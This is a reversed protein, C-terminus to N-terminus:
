WVRRTKPGLGSHVHCDHEPKAAPDARFQRDRVPHGVTAATTMALRTAPFGARPGSFGTRSVVCSFHTVLDSLRSTYRWRDLGRSVFRWERDRLTVAM